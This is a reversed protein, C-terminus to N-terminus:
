SGMGLPPTTRLARRASFVANASPQDARNSASKELSLGRMVSAKTWYEPIGSRCILAPWKSLRKEISPARIGRSCAKRSFGMTIVAMTGTSKSPIWTLVLWYQNKPERPTEKSLVSYGRWFGLASEMRVVEKSERETIAFTAAM